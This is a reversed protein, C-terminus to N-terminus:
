VPIINNCNDAWIFSNKTYSLMYTYLLFQRVFKRVLKNNMNHSNDHSYSTLQRMYDDIISVNRIRSIM